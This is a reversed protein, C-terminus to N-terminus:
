YMKQRMSFGKVLPWINFKGESGYFGQAGEQLQVSLVCCQEPPACINFIKTGCVSFLCDLHSEKLISCDCKPGLFFAM